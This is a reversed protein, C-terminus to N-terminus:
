SPQHLSFCPVSNIIERATQKLYQCSILTELFSCTDSGISTKTTIEELTSHFTIPDKAMVQISFCLRNYTYALGYRVQQRVSDLDSKRFRPFRPVEAEPVHQQESQSSASWNPLLVVMIM